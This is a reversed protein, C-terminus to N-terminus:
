PQIPVPRLMERARLDRLVGGVSDAIAQGDPFIAEVESVITTETHEGDCCEWVLAATPNLTLLTRTVTHFLVMSGDALLEDIVRPDRQPREALPSETV